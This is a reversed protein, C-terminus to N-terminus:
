HYFNKERVCKRVPKLINMWLSCLHMCVIFHTVHFFIAVTFGGFLSMGSSKQRIKNSSLLFERVELIFEM